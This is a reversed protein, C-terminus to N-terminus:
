QEMVVRLSGQQGIWLSKQNLLSVILRLNGNSRSLSLCMYRKIPRLLGKIIGGTLALRNCARLLRARSASAYNSVGRM